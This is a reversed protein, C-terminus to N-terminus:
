SSMLQRTIVYTSCLAGIGTALAARANLRSIHRLDDEISDVSYRVKMASAYWWLGAATINSSVALIAVVIDLYKIVAEGEAEGDEGDERDDAGVGVWPLQVRVRTHYWIKLKLWWVELRLGSDGTFSRAILPVIM